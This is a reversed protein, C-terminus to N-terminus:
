AHSCMEYLFFNLGNVVRKFGYKLLNEGFNILLGLRYGTLRLCTMLLKSHVPACFPSMQSTVLTAHWYLLMDEKERGPALGVCNV